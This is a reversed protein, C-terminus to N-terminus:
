YFGPTELYYVLQLKEADIINEVKGYESMSHLYVDGDYGLRYRELGTWVINELPVNSNNSSKFM